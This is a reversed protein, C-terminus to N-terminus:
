DLLGLRRWGSLGFIRDFKKRETRRKEEVNRKLPSCHCLGVRPLSTGDGLILTFPSRSIAEANLGKLGMRCRMFFLKSEAQHDFLLYSSSFEIAL